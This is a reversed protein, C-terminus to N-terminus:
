DVEVEQHVQHQRDDVVYESALLPLLELPLVYVKQIVIAFTFAEM